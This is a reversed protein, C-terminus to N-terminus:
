LIWQNGGYFGCSCKIDPNVGSCTLGPKGNVVRGHTETEYRSEDCTDCHWEFGQTWFPHESDGGEGCYDREGTVPGGCKWCTMSIEVDLHIFGGEFARYLAGLWGVQEKSFMQANANVLRIATFLAQTKGPRDLEILKDVSWKRKWVNRGM